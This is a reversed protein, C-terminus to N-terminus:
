KTVTDDSVEDIGLLTVVGGNLEISLVDEESVNGEFEDKSIDAEIGSVVDVPSVGDVDPFMAKVGDSKFKISDSDDNDATLMFVGGNVEISVAETDTSDNDFEDGSIEDKITSVVDVNTLVDKVDVIMDILEDSVDRNGIVVVNGEVKTSVAETETSDNEFEDKSIENKIISVVEVNTFVDKIDVVMDILEDSVNRNGTVVVRGDVKTSDVGNDAISGDFVEESIGRDIESVGDMDIFMDDVNTVESAVDDLADPDDTSEDMAMDFADSGKEPESVKEESASAGDKTDGGGVEALLTVMAGDDGSAVDEDLTTDDTSVGFVVEEVRLGEFLPEEEWSRKDNCNIEVDDM